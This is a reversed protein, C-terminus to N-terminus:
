CWTAKQTKTLAIYDEVTKKCDGEKPLAEACALDATHATCESAKLFANYEAVTMLPNDPPDGKPLYGKAQDKCGTPWKAKWDAKHSSEHKVVCDKTGCTATAYSNLVIEYDGAGDCQITASGATPGPKDLLAEDQDVVDTAKRPDAAHETECEHCMTGAAPSTGCGCKAPARRVDDSTIPVKSFVFSAQPQYGKSTAPRGAAACAHPAFSTQSQQSRSKEPSRAPAHSWM